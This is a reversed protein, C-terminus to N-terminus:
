EPWDALVADLMVPQLPLSATSQDPIETQELQRFYLLASMHEQLLHAVTRWMRKVIEDPLMGDATTAANWAHAVLTAMEDQVVLGTAAWAAKRNGDTFESRWREIAGHM